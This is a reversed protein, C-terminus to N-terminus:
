GCIGAKGQAVASDGATRQRPDPSAGQCPGAARRVLARDRMGAQGRLGALGALDEIGARQRGHEIGRM